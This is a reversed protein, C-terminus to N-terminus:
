STVALAAIAGTSHPQERLIISANVQIKSAHVIGFAEAMVVSTPYQKNV